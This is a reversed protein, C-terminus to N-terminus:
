LHFSQGGERYGESVAGWICLICYLDLVTREYLEKYRQSINFCECDCFMCVLVRVSFGMDTTTHTNGVYGEMDLVWWWGPDLLNVYIYIGIYVYLVHASFSSYKGIVQLSFFTRICGCICLACVYM